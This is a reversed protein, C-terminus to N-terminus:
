QCPATQQLVIEAEEIALRVQDTAESNYRVRLPNIAQTNCLDRLAHATAARVDRSPHDLLPVLLALDTQVRQPGLAQIAGRLM